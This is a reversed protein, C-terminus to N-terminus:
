ITDFYVKRLDIEGSKGCDLFGLCPVVVEVKEEIFSKEVTSQKSIEPDINSLKAVFPYL